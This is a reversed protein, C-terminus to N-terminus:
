LYQVQVNNYNNKWLSFNIIHRFMCPSVELNLSNIGCPRAAFVIYLFRLHVFLCFAEILTGSQWECTYINLPLQSIWTCDNSHIGNGALDTWHFLGIWHGRSVYCVFGCLVRPFWLVYCQYRIQPLYCWVWRVHGCSHGKCTVCFCRESCRAVRDTNLLDSKLRRIGEVYGMNLRLSSTELLLYKINLKVRKINLFGLVTTSDNPLLAGFDCVAASFYISNISPIWSSVPSLIQSSLKALVWPRSWEAPYGHLEPLFKFLLLEVLKRKEWNLAGPAVFANLAYVMSSPKRM